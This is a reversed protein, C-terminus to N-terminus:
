TGRKNGYWRVHMRDCYHFGHSQTLPKLWTAQRDLAPDDIGQPMIWVHDAPALLQRVAVVCDEFDQPTDVVFKLQYDVASEICAAIAQPNWRLSEHQARWRDAIPQDDRPGSRALKPSISMLDATLPRHITGATEITVHMQAERLRTVLEVSQVPLMPEGGTLVVHQCGSAIADDVLSRIPRWDGEPQWSAYPTDCFWCRLNCGSTRIFFSRTGTLAGEGQKSVFTEAIRIANKSSIEAEVPGSRKDNQAHSARNPFPPPLHMIQSTEWPGSGKESM